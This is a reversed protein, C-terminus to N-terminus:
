DEAIEAEDLFEAYLEAHRSGPYALNDIGHHRIRPVKESCM